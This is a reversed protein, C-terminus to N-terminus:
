VNAATNHIDQLSVECIISEHDKAKETKLDWDIHSKAKPSNSVDPLDYYDLVTGSRLSLM